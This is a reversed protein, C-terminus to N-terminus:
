IIIRTHGDCRTTVLLTSVSMQWGTIATMGWQQELQECDPEAQWGSSWGATLVTVAAVKNVAMLKRPMTSGSVASIAGTMPQFICLSSFVRLFGPFTCCTWVVQCHCWYASFDGLNNKTSQYSQVLCLLGGLVRIWLQKLQIHWQCPVTVQATADIGFSVITKFYNTQCSPQCGNLILHM